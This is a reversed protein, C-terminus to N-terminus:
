RLLQLSNELGSSRAEWPILTPTPPPTGKGAQWVGPPGVRVAEWTGRSGGVEATEGMRGSAWKDQCITSVGPSVQVQCRPHPFGTELLACM